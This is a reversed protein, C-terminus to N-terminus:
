RKSVPSDFRVECRPCQELHGRVAQRAAAGLGAGCSPCRTSRALGVFAVVAASLVVVAGSTSVAWPAHVVIPGLLCTSLAVSFGSALGMRRKLLERLTM